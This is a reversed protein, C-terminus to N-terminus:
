PTSGPTDSTQSFRVISAESVGIRSALASITTNITERPASLVYKAVKANAGRFTPLADSILSLSGRDPGRQNTM